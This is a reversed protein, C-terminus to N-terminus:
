WRAEFLRVPGVVRFGHNKLIPGSTGVRALILALTSGRRVAEECRARVLLGYVGKRRRTPLVGTGWFRAVEGVIEMGARGVPVAGEWAVFRDSHGEVQVRRVFEEKFARLTEGSPVPDGFIPSSLSLFGEYDAESNAERVTVGEAHRFEPLRPDDREDRLEWVLAETEEALKFGQRTLRAHLDEPRSQPTIRVRVGTGGLSEVQTRLETLADDTSPGDSAHLGYAYTLAYSGPTVALDFNECVTRKAGPPIWRYADVADWIRDDTWHQM